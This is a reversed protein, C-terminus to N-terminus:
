QQAGGVRCLWAVPVLCASAQAILPNCDRCESSGVAFKVLGMQM